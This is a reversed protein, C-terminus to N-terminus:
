LSNGYYWRWLRQPSVGLWYALRISWMLLITHVVGHQQWRRSSTLVASRVCCPRSLQKLRKSLEIDEMLPIDEFGGISEFAQRRVFIAQDGTAIGTIRSRLNILRATLVLLWDDDDLRVNFRGWQLPSRLFQRMLANFQDPLRTDAHLFVLVEGPAHQTGANMQQARGRASSLIEVPYQAAIALTQDRSGGDVLRICWHGGAKRLTDQLLGDLNSAENLVPIVITGLQDLQEALRVM